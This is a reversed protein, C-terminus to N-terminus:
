MRDSELVERMRRFQEETVEGEAFRRSIIALADYHRGRVAVAIRAVLLVFFAIGLIRLAVFGAIFWAM